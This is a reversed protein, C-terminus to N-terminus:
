KKGEETQNKRKSKTRKIEQNLTPALWYLPSWAFRPPLRGRVDVCKFISLHQDALKYKQMDM